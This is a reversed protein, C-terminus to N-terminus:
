CPHPPDAKRAEAIVIQKGLAAAIREWNEATTGKGGAIGKVTQYPMGIAESIKKQRGYVRMLDRLQEAHAANNSQDMPGTYRLIVM